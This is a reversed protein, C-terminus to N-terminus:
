ANALRVTFAEAEDEVFRVLREGEEVLADREPESPPDFPEVVLSAAGRCKEIRWTGRVTGDLLFTARVRGASLFVKKRHEEPVFRTRDAHSLVLNDYEPLFRAPAPTDAPPLPMDPLDLLENGQEDRFTRLERRSEEVRDKLRVLGSWTQVDKVTGPGFAALYRFVLDRPEESGSLRQGLWSEALAYAVSGGSRWTGGPPVQVLPLYSRV